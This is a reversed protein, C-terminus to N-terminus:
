QWLCYVMMGFVSCSISAAGNRRQAMNCIWHIEEQWTGLTIHLGLWQLLRGCLGRTVSCDFFLHDFIEVGRDCFVCEMPVQIGIKQLRDIAFLRKQPALWLNFEFRPHIQRHLVITKWSVRPLQPLLLCYAKKIQFKGQSQMQGLKQHLDGQINQLQIVKKRSDIIKRVVWAANKHTDM